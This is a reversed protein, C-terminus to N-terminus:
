EFNRGTQDSTLPVGTRDGGRRGPAEAIFLVRADIPGNLTSLVRRRGDMSPCRRCATARTVLADFAANRYLPDRSVNSARWGRATMGRAQKGWQESEPPM